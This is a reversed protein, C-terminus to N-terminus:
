LWHGSTARGWYAWQVHNAAAVLERRWQQYTDDDVIHSRLDLLYEIHQDVVDIDDVHTAHDHDMLDGVVLVLIVLVLAVDVDVDVDVHVVLEVHVVDVYDLLLLAVYDILEVDHVHGVSWHGM